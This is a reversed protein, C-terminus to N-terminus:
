VLIEQTDFLTTITLYKLNELSDSMQIIISIVFFAFPLGGGLAMANKSRNFLCSAFFGIASFAPILLCCGINLWLYTEMDFKISYDENLATTALSENIMSTLLEESQGSANTAAAMANKEKMWMMNESLTLTDTGLEKSAANMAIRMRKPSNRM